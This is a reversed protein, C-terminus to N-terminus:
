GMVILGYSDGRLKGVIKQLIEQVRAIKPTDFEQLQVRRGLMSYSGSVGTICHRLHTTFWSLQTFWIYIYITSSFLARLVCLLRLVCFVCIYVIYFFKCEVWVEFKLTSVHVIYQIKCHKIWMAHASCCGWWNNSTLDRQKIRLEKKERHIDNIYM